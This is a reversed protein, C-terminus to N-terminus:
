FRPLIASESQSQNPKRKLMIPISSSDKADFTPTKQTSQIFILFFIIFFTYKREDVYYWNENILDFDNQWYQFISFLSCGGAKPDTPDSLPNFCVDDWTIDTKEGDNNIYSTKINKIEMSLDFLEEWYKSNLIENFM